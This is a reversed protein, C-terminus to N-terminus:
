VFEIVFKNKKGNEIMVFRDHLLNSPTLAIGIDTIKDKNLSIANSEVARRAESKSSCISAVTGSNRM